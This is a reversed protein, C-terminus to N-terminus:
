SGPEFPLSGTASQGGLRCTITHYGTGQPVPSRPPYSWAVTGQADATRGGLEMRSGDPMTASATCAAGPLTSANVDGYDSGNIYVFM